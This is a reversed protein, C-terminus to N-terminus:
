PGRGEALRVGGARVVAYLLCVFLTVVTGLTGWILARSVHSAAAGEDEVRRGM